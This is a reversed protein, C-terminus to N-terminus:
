AARRRPAPRLHTPVATLQGVRFRGHDPVSEGAGLHTVHHKRHDGECKQDERHDGAIGAGEGFGRQVMELDRDGSRLLQDVAEVGAGFQGYGGDGVIRLGARLTRSRFAAAAKTTWGDPLSSM